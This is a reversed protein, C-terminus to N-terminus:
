FAEEEAKGRKIVEVQGADFSTEEEDEEAKADAVAETRVIVTEPDEMYAVGPLAPLDAVTLHDGAEKIQRLDVEIHQPSKPPCAKSRM